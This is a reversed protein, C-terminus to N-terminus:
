TTLGATQGDYGYWDPVTSYRSHGCISDFMQPLAAPASTGQLAPLDLPPLFLGWQSCPVVSSERPDFRMLQL